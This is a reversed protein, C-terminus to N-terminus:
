QKRMPSLFSNLFAEPISDPSAPALFTLSSFSPLAHYCPLIFPLRNQKTKNKTNKNNNKKGFNELFSFYMLLVTINHWPTLANYMSTLKYMCNYMLIILLLKYRTTTTRKHKLSYDKYTIEDFSM